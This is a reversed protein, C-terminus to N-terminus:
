IRVTSLGPTPSTDAPAKRVNIMDYDFSKIDFDNDLLSELTKMM